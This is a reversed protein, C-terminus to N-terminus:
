RSSVVRFKNRSLIHLAVNNEMNGVNKGHMKRFTVLYAKKDFYNTYFLVHMKIRGFKPHEPNITLKILIMIMWEHFDKFNSLHLM